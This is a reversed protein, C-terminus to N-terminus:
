RARRACARAGNLPGRLPWRWAALGVVLVAGGAIAVHAAFAPNAGAGRLLPALIMVGAYCALAAGLRVPSRALRHAALHLLVLVGLFVVVGSLEHLRDGDLGAFGVDHTWLPIAVLIRAANALITAAYAAAASAALIAANGGPSRSPRVFALVLSGFAVILFNVGACAPAIVFRLETSLYGGSTWDFRYGGALEVLATTPTLVFRLDAATAGSYFAKLAWAALGAVALVAVAAATRARM